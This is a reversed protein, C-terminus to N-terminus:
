QPTESSRNCGHGIVYRVLVFIKLAGDCFVGLRHVLHMAERQRSQHRVWCPPAPKRDHVPVSVDAIMETMHRLLFERCVHHRRDVWMCEVVFCVDQLRRYRSVKDSLTVKLDSIQKGFYTVRGLM